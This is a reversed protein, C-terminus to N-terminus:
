NSESFKVVIKKPNTLNVITPIKRKKSLYGVLKMMKKTKKEWDGKGYFVSSPRKNISLILTLEDNKDVIAESINAVMKKDMLKLINSINKYENRELQKVPLALAPLGGKIKNESRLLVEYTPDLLKGNEGLIATYYEDGNDKYINVKMLPDPCNFHFSIHRKTPHYKIKYDSLFHKEDLHDKLIKKKVDKLSRNQEFEKMLNLTLQGAVKSPCKGFYTKYTVQTNQKIEAFCTSALIISFILKKSM